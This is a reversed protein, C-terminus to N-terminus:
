IRSQNGVMTVSSICKISWTENHGFGKWLAPPLFLSSIQTAKDRDTATACRGFEPWVQIQILLLFLEQYRGQLSMFGPPPRICNPMGGGSQFIGNDLGLLRLFWITKRFLHFIRCVLMSSCREMLAISSSGPLRMELEQNNFWSTDILCTPVCMSPPPYICRCFSMTVSSASLGILHFHWQVSKKAVPEVKGQMLNNSPQQRRCRM